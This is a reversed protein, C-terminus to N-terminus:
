YHIKHSKHLIVPFLIECIKLVSKERASKTVCFWLFSSLAILYHPFLVNLFLSLYFIHDHFTFIFFHIKHSKHLIVPFINWMNEACIKRECMKYCLIMSSIVTSNSLASDKIIVFVPKKLCDYSYTILALVFILEVVEHKYIKIILKGVVFSNEKWILYGVSKVFHYNYFWTM